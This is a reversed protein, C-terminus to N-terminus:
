TEVPQVSLTIERSLPAVSRLEITENLSAFGARSVTLRYAGLPLARFAYRGEPPLDVAQHTDTAQNVLEVHAPLAAGAADKVVLRLEGTYSQAHLGACICLFLAARTM